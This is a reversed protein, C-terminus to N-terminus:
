PNNDVVSNWGNCVMAKGTVTDSPAWTAMLGTHYAPLGFFLNSRSWNFNDKVAIGEFGIPSLFIGAQLSFVGDEGPDWGVYAQQINRFHDQDTSAAGGAGPSVPEGLYYTSPTHGVQLAVRGLLSQYDFTAGLVANSLTFTNHRNDYGRFNTIDNQPRNFNYSYHVEAYGDFTASPGKAEPEPAKEAAKRRVKQVLREHKARLAALEQDTKAERAEAAAAREELARIKDALAQLEASV